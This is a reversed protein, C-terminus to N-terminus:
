RVWLTHMSTLGPMELARVDGAIRELKKKDNTKQPLLENEDVLLRGTSDNARLSWM